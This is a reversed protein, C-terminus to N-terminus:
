HLELSNGRKPSSMTNLKKQFVGVAFKNLKPFHLIELAQLPSFESKLSLIIGSFTDLKRVKGVGFHQQLQQSIQYWLGTPWLHAFLLTASHASHASCVSCTRHPPPTETKL